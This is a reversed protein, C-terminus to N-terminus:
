RYWIHQLFLILHKKILSTIQVTVHLMLCMQVTITNFYLTYKINSTSFPTSMSIDPHMANKNLFSHLEYILHKNRSICIHRSHVPLERNVTTITPPPRLYGLVMTLVFTPLVHYLISKIYVQSIEPEWPLSYSTKHDEPIYQQTTLHINVPTESTRVAGMMSAILSSRTFRYCTICSDLHVPSVLPESM